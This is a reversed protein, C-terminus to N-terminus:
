RSGPGLPRPTATRVPGAASAADCSRRVSFVFNWSRVMGVVGNTTTSRSSSTCPAISRASASVLSNAVLTAIIERRLRHEAIQDPFRKRLPRPFYKILDQLLYPDDPLDSVDLDM